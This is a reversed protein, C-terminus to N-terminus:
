ENLLRGQESGYFVTPWTMAEYRPSKGIKISNGIRKLAEKKIEIEEDTSTTMLIGLYEFDSVM